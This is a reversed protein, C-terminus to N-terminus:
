DREGGGVVGSRWSSMTLKSRHEGIKKRTKESLKKEGEFVHDESGEGGRKSRRTLAPLIRKLKGWNV